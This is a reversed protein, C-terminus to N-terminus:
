VDVALLALVRVDKDHRMDGDREDIFKDLLEALGASKRLLISTDGLRFALDVDGLVGLCEDMNWMGATAEFLSVTVPIEWLLLITM